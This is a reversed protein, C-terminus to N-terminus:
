SVKTFMFGRYVENAEPVGTSSGFTGGGDDIAYYEFRLTDTGQVGFAGFIPVIIEGTTVCNVSYLLFSGQTVNRLRVRMKCNTACVNGILTYNGSELTFDNGTLVCTGAVTETMTTLEMTTWAGFSMTDAPYGVADEYILAVIKETQTQPNPGQIGGPSVGAGASILDGFDANTEYAQTTDDRLNKIEITGVGVSVVEYYGGGEIYINQGVFAWSSESVSITETDLQDPQNFNVTTVTYANIGDTGDAGPTGNTGDAGPEGGVSVCATAPIVTGETANVDLCLNELVLHTSDPISRLRFYGAVEIYIVQGPCFCDSNAVTVTVEDTGPYGCGPMEFEETVSTVPSCGDTGPTGDQGPYGQPGPINTTVEVCPSCCKDPVLSDSM